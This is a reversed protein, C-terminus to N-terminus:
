NTIQLRCPIIGLYKFVNKKGLKIKIGKTEDAKNKLFICKFLSHVLLLFKCTCTTGNEDLLQNDACACVRGGPIALCLTSCGGNNIRCM